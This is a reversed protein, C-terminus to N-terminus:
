IVVPSNLLMIECHLEVVHLLLGRATYPPVLSVFHFPKCVDPLTASAESLIDSHPQRPTCSPYHNLTCAVYARVGTPIRALSGKSCTVDEEEGMEQKDVKLYLRKHRFFIHSCFRTKMYRSIVMLDLVFDVSMLIGSVTVCSSIFGLSLTDFTSTSLEALLLHLPWGRQLQLVDIWEVVDEACMLTLASMTARMARCRSRLSFCWKSCWSTCGHLLFSCSSSCNLISTEIVLTFTSLSKWLGLLMMLM